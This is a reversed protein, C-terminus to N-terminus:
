SKEGEIDYANSVRFM